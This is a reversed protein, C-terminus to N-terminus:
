CLMNKTFKWFWCSCCSAKFTCVSQGSRFLFLLRHLSSLLNGLRGIGYLWLYIFHTLLMMLYVNGSKKQRSYTTVLATIFHHLSDIRIFTKKSPPCKKIKFVKKAWTESCSSHSIQEFFSLFSCGTNYIHIFNIGNTSSSRSPLNNCNM